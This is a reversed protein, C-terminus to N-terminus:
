DGETIYVNISDTGSLLATSYPLGGKVVWNVPDLLSDIGIAYIYYNGCTLSDITAFASNSPSTVSYDYKTTDEGPFESANYKIFVKCGIIPRSHHVMKAVLTLTGTRGEACNDIEEEKKDDNCQINILIIVAFFLFLRLRQLTTNGKVM